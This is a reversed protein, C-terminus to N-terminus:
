EEGGEAASDGKGVPPAGPTVKECTKMSYRADIQPDKGTVHWLQEAGWDFQPDFSIRVTKDGTLGDKALSAALAKITCQPLEPPSVNKWQNTANWIKSHDVNVGGFVFKRISDKRGSKSANTVRSPSVYMVQAGQSADVTGDARVAQYNTSWWYADKKWKKAPKAVATMAKDGDLKSKDLGLGSYTSKGKPAIFRGKLVSFGIGGAAILVVLVGGGIMKLRTFGGSGGPLSPMNPMGPMNPM